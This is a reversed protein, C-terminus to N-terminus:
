CFIGYWGEGKDILDTHFVQLFGTTEDFYWRQNARGFQNSKKQQLVVACGQYTVIDEEEEQNGQVNPMAVSLVMQPNHKSQIISCFSLM